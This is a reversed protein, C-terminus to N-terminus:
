LLSILDTDKPSTPQVAGTRAFPSIQYIDELSFGIFFIFYSPFIIHIPKSHPFSAKQDALSAVLM